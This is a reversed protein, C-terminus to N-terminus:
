FKKLFEFNIENLKLDPSFDLLKKKIVLYIKIRATSFHNIRLIETIFDELRKYELIPKNEIISQLEQKTFDSKLKMADILRGEIETLLMKINFNIQKAHVHNKIIGNDFQNEKVSYSTTKSVKIGNFSLRIQIARTGDKKLQSHLILNISYPM